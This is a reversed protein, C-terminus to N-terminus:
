VPLRPTMVRLYARPLMALWIMGAYGTPMQPAQESRKLADCRLSPSTHHAAHRPLNFLLAESIWSPSDWSHQPGMREVGTGTVRRRLGWHEIYEVAGVLFLAMITTMLWFVFPKAGGILAVAGIFMLSTATWFYAENWWRSTQRSLQVAGVFVGWYYRPLFEWLTEDRRASAADGEMAATRHHGRNHEIIYHGYGLTALFLRSITQDFRNWRHGLEHSLTIGIGGSVYGMSLGLMLVTPWSLDNVVFMLMLPQVLVWILILRPLQSGWAPMGPGRRDVGATLWELIPVLAVGAVFAALPIELWLGVIPLVSFVIPLAILLSRMIGM